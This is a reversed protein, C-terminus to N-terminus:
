PGDIEILQKNDRLWRFCARSVSEIKEMELFLSIPGTEGIIERAERFAQPLLPINKVYYNRSAEVSATTLHRRIHRQLRYSALM